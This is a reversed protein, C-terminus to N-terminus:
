SKHALGNKGQQKKLWDAFKLVLELTDPSMGKLAQELEALKEAMKSESECLVGVKM